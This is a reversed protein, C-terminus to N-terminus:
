KMIKIINSQYVGTGNVTINGSAYIESMSISMTTLHAPENWIEKNLFSLYEELVSKLEEIKSKTPTFRKRNWNDDIYEFIKLCFLGECTTWRWRRRRM